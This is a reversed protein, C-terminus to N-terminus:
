VVGHKLEAYAASCLFIKGAGAAKIASACELITAGTTIVDDCLIINKGSIINKEKESVEFAGLVNQKREAKNLKTQTPTFRTRHVAHLEIPLNLVNGLGKAIFESQNYTRERRKAKHLPVPIIIDFERIQEVSLKKGAEEGLLIGASKIKGYKLAHFVTQIPTGERFWFASFSDSIIGGSIKEERWPHTENYPELKELCGACLFRDGTGLIKECVLCGNPLVFDLFGSLFQKFM